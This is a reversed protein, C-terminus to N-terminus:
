GCRSTKSLAREPRGPVDQAGGAAEFPYRLSEGNGCNCLGIKPTAMRVGLRRSTSVLLRPSPDALAGIPVEEGPTALQVGSRRPLCQGSEGYRHLGHLHSSVRCPPASDHSAVARTRQGSITSTVNRSRRSLTDAAHRPALLPLQGGLNGSDARGCRLWIGKQQPSIPSIHNVDTDQHKGPVRLPLGAAPSTVGPRHYLHMESRWHSRSIAKSAQWWAM